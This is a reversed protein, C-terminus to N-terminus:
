CYCKIGRLSILNRAHEGLSSSVNVIEGRCLSYKSKITDFKWITSISYGSPIYEDIKTTSHKELNSACRDMKKIFYELDAYIIYSMKDSKM